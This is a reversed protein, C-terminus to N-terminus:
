RKTQHTNPQLKIVRQYSKETVHLFGGIVIFPKLIYAFTVVATVCVETIKKRTDELLRSLLISPVLSPYRPGARFQTGVATHNECADVM